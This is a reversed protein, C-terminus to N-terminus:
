IFLLVGGIAPTVVMIFKLINQPARRTFKAGIYAGVVLGVVVEALLWFQLAGEIFYGVGGAIAIPFIVLYSNSKEIHLNATITSKTLIYAYLKYTYAIQSLIAIAIGFM